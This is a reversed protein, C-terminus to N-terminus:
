RLWKRASRGTETKRWGLPARDIAALVAETVLVSRSLIYNIRWGLPARDVAALVAEAVLM